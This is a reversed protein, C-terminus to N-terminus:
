EVSVNTLDVPVIRGFRQGFVGTFSGDQGYGDWTVVFNGTPDAAIATTKQQQPTFTNIRFQPGAPTGDSAFRQGFVDAPVASSGWGVVFNGAADTAVSPNGSAPITNVRFGAGLPVGSAAFRQAFVGADSQAQGDWVVVFGGSPAAAVAPDGQGDTTYSNVRFELGLPAGNSAFRQAFVDAEFGYELGSSWTVVFNGAADAAVAAHDQFNTTYTNVRFEPGLPAGSSTFRQGFIGRYSGDQGDSSWVVVFNGAPDVAVSPLFQSQPTHTNIRFESGVPTGDSAFRQGFVDFAYAFGSSWAVVFNGASDAAVSPSAQSNATSSNVRFESGLPAGSSAFRQGFVGSSEGEGDGWWVVVFNGSADAAVDAGLQGGTTYTNVRFEDGLPTGGQPWAARPVSVSLVFFVLCTRRM